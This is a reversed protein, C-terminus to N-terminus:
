LIQIQLAKAPAELWGRSLSRTFHKAYWSATSDNQWALARWAAYACARVECTLAELADRTAIGISTEAM